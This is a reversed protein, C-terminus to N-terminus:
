YIINELEFLLGSTVTYVMFISYSITLFLGIVGLSISARALDKRKSNLSNLGLILSALSLPLGVLPILWAVLSVIGMIVASRASKDQISYEEVNYDLYNDM